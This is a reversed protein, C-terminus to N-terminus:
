EHKFELGEDPRRRRNANLDNKRKKRFKDFDAAFQSNNDFESRIFDFLTEDLQRAPGFPTMNEVYQMATLFSLMEKLDEMKTELQFNIAGLVPDVDNLTDMKASLEDYNIMTNKPALVIKEVFFKMVFRYLGANNDPKVGTEPHQRLWGMLVERYWVESESTKIAIQQRNMGEDTTENNLFQQVADIGSVEITVKSDVQSSKEFKNKLYAYRNENQRQLQKRFEKLTSM